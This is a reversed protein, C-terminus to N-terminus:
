LLQALEEFNIERERELYICMRDSRYTQLGRVLVDM